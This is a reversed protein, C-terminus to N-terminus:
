CATWLESSFAQIAHVSPGDGLDVLRDDPNENGYIFNGRKALSTLAAFTKKDTLPIVFVDDKKICSRICIFLYINQAKHTVM